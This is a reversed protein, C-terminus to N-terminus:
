VGEILSNLRGFNPTGRGGESATGEYGDFYFLTTSDLAAAVQAGVRYDRNIDPRNRPDKEYLLSAYPSVTAVEDSDEQITLLPKHAGPAQPDVLRRARIM